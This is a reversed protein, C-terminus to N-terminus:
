ANRHTRLCKLLPFATGVREPFATGVREGEFDGSGCVYRAEDGMLWLKGFSSESPWGKYSVHIQRLQSWFIGNQTFFRTIVAM